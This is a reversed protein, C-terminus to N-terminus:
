REANLERMLSLNEEQLKAIEERRSLRERLQRQQQQELEMLTAEGITILSPSNRKGQLVLRVYERTVGARKALLNISGRFRRLHNYLELSNKKKEM